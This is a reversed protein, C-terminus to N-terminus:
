GTRRRVLRELVVRHREVWQALDFREVARARAAAGHEDLREAVAALAEALGAPAPPHDQEWDLQTPVGRGADDGVLEPVGGSASYVVPLGSAMAELVVMPCPDNVKTHLLVDARRMLEPADRRSYPGLFDVAGDLGLRARLGLAQARGDPAFSLEGAVLLRADPRERRVLALTELASVLRYRQYQSGGLLLTLPRRPRGPSPTFLRTDVPNHLVEWGDRREGYFRDASLKCFASQFFVHDARHLLRARPANVLEYGPGYWAPYAVGNQNWVFAARRRRALRVLAPADVTLSSSGLYLVNFDRPANPLTRHLLHFKVAGGLVVDDEGPMREVGYSVALEGSRPPSAAIERWRSRQRLITVLAAQANRTRRVPRRLAWAVRDWTLAGGGGGGV